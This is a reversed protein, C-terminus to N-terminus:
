PTDKAVRTGPDAFPKLCPHHLSTRFEIIEFAAVGERVFPDYSMIEELEDRSQTAAIIVGGTRPVQRGSAVFAGSSYCQELFRVHDKMLADVEALPKTYKLLVVFM